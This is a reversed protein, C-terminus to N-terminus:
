AIGAPRTRNVAQAPQRGSHSSQGQRASFEYTGDQLPTNWLPEGKETVLIIDGVKLDIVPNLFALRMALEDPDQVTITLPLETLTGHCTYCRRTHLAEKKSRQIAGDGMAEEVRTHCDVCDLTWECRVFQAIPQYYDDLRSTPHDSRPVFTM